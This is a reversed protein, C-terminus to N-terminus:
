WSQDPPINLYSPQIWVGKLHRSESETTAAINEGQIAIGYQGSSHTMLTGCTSISVNAELGLKSKANMLRHKQINYSLQGVSSKNRVPVLFYTNWKESKAANFTVLMNQKDLFHFEGKNFVAGTITVFRLLRDPSYNHKAWISNGRCLLYLEVEHDNIRSFVAVTCDQSTPVSSFAAIHDSVETFPCSPLEIKARTFPCFFFMSGHRFVLLWGEYSALCTAGDLEPINMTYIKDQNSLLSCQSGGEDYILLWPDVGFSKDKAKSSANHWDKCVGRFGLFEILGLRDVIQLLLDNPLNSWQVKQMDNQM